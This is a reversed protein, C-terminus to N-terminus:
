RYFKLKILVYVMIKPDVTWQLCIYQRHDKEIEKKNCSSVLLQNIEKESLTASPTYRHSKQSSPNSSFVTLVASSASPSIYNKQKRSTSEM